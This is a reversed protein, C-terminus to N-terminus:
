IILICLVSVRLQPLLRKLFMYLFHKSSRERQGNRIKIYGGSRMYLGVEGLTGM